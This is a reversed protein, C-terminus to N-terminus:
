SQIREALNGVIPAKWSDGQYARWMFYLWLALSGASLTLSLVLAVLWGILPIFALIGSVVSLVISAVILVLAAATSQAAHFRVFQNEKELVLFAVGTIPGLSYALAGALNPDLGSATTTRPQPSM